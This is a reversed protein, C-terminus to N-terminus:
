YKNKSIILLLLLLGFSLLIPQLFYFLYWTVKWWSLLIPLILMQVFFRGTRCWGIFNIGCKTSKLYTIYVSFFSKVYHPIWNYNRLGQICTFQQLQLPTQLKVHWLRLFELFMKESVNHSQPHKALNRQRFVVGEVDAM